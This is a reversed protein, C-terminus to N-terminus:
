LKWTGTILSIPVRLMVDVMGVAMLREDRTVAEAMSMFPLMESYAGGKRGRGRKGRNGNGVKELM